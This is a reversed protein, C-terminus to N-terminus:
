GAGYKRLVLGSVRFGLGEWLDLAAWEARVVHCGTTEEKEGGGLVGVAHRAGHAPENWLYVCM